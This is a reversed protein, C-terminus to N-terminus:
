NFKFHINDLVIDYLIEDEISNIKLTRESLYKFYLISYSESITTILFAKVLESLKEFSISQLENAQNNSEELFLNDYFDIIESKSYIIEEDVGKEDVYEQEWNPNFQTQEAFDFCDRLQNLLQRPNGGALKYVESVFDRSFPYFLKQQLFITDATMHFTELRLKILDYGENLTLPKIPHIKSVRDILYRPLNNRINDLWEQTQVVLLLFLNKKEQLLAITNDVLKILGDNKFRYFTSELQDVTLLIPFPSLNILSKCLVLALDENIYKTGINLTDRESDTLEGGQFWKLVYSKRFPDLLAFLAQSLQVEINPFVQAFNNISHNIFVAKNDSKTLLHFLADSKSVSIKEKISSQDEPLTKILIKRLIET